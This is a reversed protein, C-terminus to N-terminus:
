ARQSASASFCARDSPLSCDQELISTEALHTTLQTSLSLRLNDFTPRSKANIKLLTPNENFVSIQLELFSPSPYLLIRPVIEM